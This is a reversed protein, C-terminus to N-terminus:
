LKPANRTGGGGLLVMLNQPILFLYAKTASILSLTVWVFLTKPRAELVTPRKGWWLLGPDLRPIAPLLRCGSLKPGFTSLEGPPYRHRWRESWEQAGSAEV